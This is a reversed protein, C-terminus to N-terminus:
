LASVAALFHRGRSPWDFADRCREFARNQLRNLRGLDDIARWVGTALARQDPYLQISDDRELPVGAVSGELAFIPTRNFIYELVKLKFGGGNREPVIAIRASEMYRDVRDVTGTFHTAVVSKQMQDFFARDGSGVVELEVGHAAFIPDAVNIFEEINLRKAIWDFSGVVVARRPLDPTIQRESIARGRYGPTLVEIRKRPWEAGYLAHDEPTIATVLDAEAVLARELRTVKYADLKLGHRKLFGPHNEALAKRLSSEHNHSVYVIKPRKRRRPWRSTVRRLAWGASIGDFVVTDFDAGALVEDLMRRMTPTTCRKAMNPLRSTLSARPSLPKDAALRWLVRGDRAGDHRQSDLRALGVVVVEAGAGAIADILGGSYLYQGNYEPTPDALTLWLFRM